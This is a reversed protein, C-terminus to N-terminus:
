ALVLLVLQVPVLPFVLAEPLFVLEPALLQAPELSIVGM